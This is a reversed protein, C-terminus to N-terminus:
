RKGLSQGKMLIESILHYSLFPLFIFMYWAAVTESKSFNADVFNDALLIYIILVVSDILWAFLRKYFPAAEFELDINFNTNVRITAM